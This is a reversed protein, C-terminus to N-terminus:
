IGLWSFVVSFLADAIIVLFIALVVSSTTREGVNEASGKAMFGQYCGVMVIIVAFVPAKSIGILYSEMTLADPLRELFATSSVDLMLGAMLMGGLIGLFDAYLTLLPMVILMAALKPLVLLEVPDLGLVRIADIEETVQMTAIQATYASGTRGAVLIATILPAFERTMSLAVLDTIYISAGYQQLQVGGQYSIVVGILFTLLGIIPLAQFGASEINAAMDQWRFRRASTIMRVLALATEGTFSLFQLATRGEEVARMGLRELPNHYPPRVAQAPPHASVLEFLSAHKAALGSLTVERGARRGREALRFLLWAGATDLRVLGSADIIIAPASPWVFKELDNEIATAFALTWEGQCLLHGEGTSQLPPPQKRQDAQDQM